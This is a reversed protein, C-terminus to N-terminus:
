RVTIAEAKWESVRDASQEEEDESEATDYSSINSVDIDGLQEYLIKGVTEVIAICTDALINCWDSLTEAIVKISEEFPSLLDPYLILVAKYYDWNVSKLTDRCEKYPKYTLRHLKKIDKNRSM